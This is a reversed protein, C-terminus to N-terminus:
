IKLWKRILDLVLPIIIEWPLAIAAVGDPKPMVSDLFDAAEKDTKVPAAGFPKPEHTHSDPYFASLGCGLVEYGAHVAEANSVTSDGRLKKIVSGLAPFPDTPYPILHAMSGREFTLTGHNRKLALELPGTITTTDQKFRSRFARAVLQSQFSHNEDVLMREILLNLFDAAFQTM